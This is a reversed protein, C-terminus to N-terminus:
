RTDWDYRDWQVWIPVTVLLHGRAIFTRRARETPVPPPAPPRPPEVPKVPQASPAGEQAAPQAAPEAAPSGPQAAPAAAPDTAPAPAGAADGGERARRGGEGRGRFGRREGEGGEGAAKQEAKPEPKPEPPRVWGEWEAEARVYVDGINNAFNRRERNPGDINPTFAGSTGDLVGVYKVDDDYEHAPLEELRWRAALTFLPVDDATWPKKDPGRHMARAEFREFQKPHAVGGVRSFGQGPEVRIYDVTDYLTLCRPGPDMRFSLRRPGLDAQPETCVVLTVWEPSRREVSKITVGRGAHFDAPTLGEPFNQGFLDLRAEACPVEICGQKTGLLRAAGTDRVLTIDAGIEGFAGHFIRGEFRQWDADLLLVEKAADAADAGEVASRGRWSYGAYLVSRGKRQVVAGDAFNLTWTTSYGNEETREIAVRGTFDGRGTEHGLVSWTGALPVERREVQWASWEPTILAQSKALADLVRDARDPGTEGDGRMRAFFEQREAESMAEINVNSNNSRAPSGRFAQSRALPFFALHMAKLLKWETGDRQQSYVRGLSHCGACSEKLEQDTNSESWHVRRESEFLGRRAEARTLGFDNALYALIEKAESPTTQLHHHRLMRKLTLEWGEPSKRQYSIRTMLGTADAPHCGVCYKTILENKVPIGARAEAAPAEGGPRGGPGRRGGRETGSEGQAPLVALMWGLTVVITWCRM